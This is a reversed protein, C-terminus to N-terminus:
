TLNDTLMHVAEDVNNHSQVLAQVAQDRTFGMKMVKNVDAENYKLKPVRGKDTPDKRGHDVDSMHHARAMLDDETHASKRTAGNIGGFFSSKKRLTNDKVEQSEQEKEREKEQL